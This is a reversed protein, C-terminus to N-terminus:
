VQSLASPQQQQQWQSSSDNHCGWDSSGTGGEAGQHHRQHSRAEGDDEPPNGSSSSTTSLMRCCSLPQGTPSHAKPLLPRAEPLTFRCLWTPLQHTPLSPPLPPSPPPPPPLSTLLPCRSYHAAEPHTHRGTSRRRVYVYLRLPPPPSHPFHAVIDVSTSPRANLAPDGGSPFRRPQAGAM